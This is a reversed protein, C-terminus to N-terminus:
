AAARRAPTVPSTVIWVVQGQRGALKIALWAPAPAKSPCTVPTREDLSGLVSHLGLVRRMGFARQPRCCAGTM